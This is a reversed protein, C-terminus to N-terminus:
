HILSLYLQVDQDYTKGYGRTFDEFSDSDNSSNDESEDSSSKRYNSDGYKRFKHVKLQLRSFSSYANPFSPNDKM